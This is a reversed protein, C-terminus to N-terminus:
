TEIRDRHHIGQARIACLFSNQNSGLPWTPSLSNKQGNEVVGSLDGRSKRNERRKRESRRTFCFDSDSGIHSHNLEKGNRGHTLISILFFFIFFYLLLFKARPAFSSLLFWPYPCPAFRAFGRIHNSSPWCGSSNRAPNAVKSVVLWGLVEM